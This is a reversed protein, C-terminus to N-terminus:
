MNQNIWNDLSDIEKYTLVDENEKPKEFQNVAEEFVDEPIDFRKNKSRNEQWRKRVIIEPIDVFIIKTEIGLDDALKKARDRWERTVWAYENLVTKGEKLNEIIRKDLEKFINNWSEDSIDADSVNEFGLENKVDDVSVRVFGFRKELEKALTTKGSFPYGVFLYHMQKM